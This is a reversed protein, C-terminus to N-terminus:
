RFWVKAPRAGWEFDTPNAESAARSLSPLPYCANHSAGPELIRASELLRYTYPTVEGSYGPITAQITFQVRDLTTAGDNHITVSLPRGSPCAAADYAVEIRALALEQAARSQWYLVGSVLIAAFLLVLWLGKPWFKLIGLLVVALALIAWWM